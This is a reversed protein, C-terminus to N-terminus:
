GCFFRSLQRKRIHEEWSELIVSVTFIHEFKNIVAAINWVIPCNHNQLEYEIIMKQEAQTLRQLWKVRESKAQKGIVKYQEIRKKKDM